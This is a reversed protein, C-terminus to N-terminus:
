FGLKGCLLEPIPDRLDFCFLRKITGKVRHWPSIAHPIPNIRISQSFCTSLTPIALRQFSWDLKEKALACEVSYQEGIAYVDSGIHVPDRICVYGATTLFEVRFTNVVIEVNSSSGRKRAVYIGKPLTCWEMTFRWVGSQWCTFYGVCCARVVAHAFGLLKHAQSSVVFDWDSYTMRPSAAVCPPELLSHHYISRYTSSAPEDTWLTSQVHGLYPVQAFLCGPSFNTFTKSCHRCSQRHTTRCNDYRGWNSREDTSRSPNNWACRKRIGRSAFPTIFLISFYVTSPNWTRGSESPNGENDFMILCSAFYIESCCFPVSCAWVSEHNPQHMITVSYLSSQSTYSRRPGLSCTVSWSWPFSAATYQM